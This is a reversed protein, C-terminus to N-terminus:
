LKKIVNEARSVDFAGPEEIFLHQVKIGELIMAFRQGRVGLSYMSGDFTLGLSSSLKANGDAIFTIDDLARNAQGWAQM